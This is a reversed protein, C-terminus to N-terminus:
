GMLHFPTMFCVVDMIYDLMFFPAPKGKDKLSQYEIIKRVLNDSFMKAWDFYYGDEVTKMIPVWPLSFHATNERRYLRYMMMAVYMMHPFNTYAM